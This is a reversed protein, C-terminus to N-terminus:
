STSKVGSFTEVTDNELWDPQCPPWIEMNYRSAMRIWCVGNNGGDTPELFYKLPYQPGGRLLSLPPGEKLKLGFIEIGEM